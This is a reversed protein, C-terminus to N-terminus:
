AGTGPSIGIVGRACVIEGARQGPHQREKEPRVLHGERDVAIVRRGLDLRACVGAERVRRLIHDLDADVLADVEPEGIRRSAPLATLHRFPDVFVEQPRDVVVVIVIIITPYFSAEDGVASPYTAGQRGRRANYV